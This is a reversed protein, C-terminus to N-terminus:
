RLNKELSQVKRAYKENEVHYFQVKAVMLAM